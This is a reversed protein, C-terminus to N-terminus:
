PCMELPFNLYVKERMPAFYCRPACHLGPKRYSLFCWNKNQASCNDAWLCVYKKDRAYSTLFGNYASIIDEKKLGSICEHWLITVAKNKQTLSGLPVFSQNFVIIRPTFIVEKFMDIRPLMIVKQMDTSYYLSEGDDIKKKDSRYEERSMEAKKIHELWQLCKDCDTNQNANQKTHGNEHLLFSECKECEEHGLKTFSINMDKIVRRYLEYSIQLEPHCEEFDSFM